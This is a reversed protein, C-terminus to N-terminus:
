SGTALTKGDTSFALCTPWSEHLQLVEKGSAVAWLRITDDEEAASAVIKGDPSLALAVVSGGPRLRTTGFRLLAGPPLPDGYADTRATTENGVAPPSDARLSITTLLALWTLLLPRRFHSM